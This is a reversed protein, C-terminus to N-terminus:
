AQAEYRRRRVLTFIDPDAYMGVKGAWYERNEPTDPDLTIAGMRQSDGYVGILQNEKSPVVYRLKRTDKM